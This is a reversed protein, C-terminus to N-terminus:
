RREGCADCVGSFRGERICAEIGDMLHPTVQEVKLSTWKRAGALEPFGARLHALLRLGGVTNLHDLFEREDFDVSFEVVVPSARPVYRSVEQLAALVERATEM